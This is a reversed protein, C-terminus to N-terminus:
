LSDGSNRADNRAFPAHEAIEAGLPHQATAATSDDDRADDNGELPRAHQTSM